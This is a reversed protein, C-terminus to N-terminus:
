FPHFHPNKMEKFQVIQQDDKDTIVIQNVIFPWIKILNENYWKILMSKRRKYERYLNINLHRSLVIALSLLQEQSIKPGFRNTLLKWADCNSPNFGDLKKKVFRMEERAQSNQVPKFKRTRSEKGSM